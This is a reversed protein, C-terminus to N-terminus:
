KYKFPKFYRETVFEARLITYIAGETECKLISQLNWKLKAM